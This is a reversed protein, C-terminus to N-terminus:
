RCSYELIAKIIGKSNLFVYKDELNGDRYERYVKILTYDKMLLYATLEKSSIIIKDDVKELKKFM